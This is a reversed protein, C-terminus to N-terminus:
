ELDTLWKVSARNKLPQLSFCAARSSARPAHGRLRRRDGRRFPHRWGIVGGGHALRDVRQDCLELDAVLLVGGLIVPEGPLRALPLPQFLDVAHHSWGTESLVPHPAFPRHVSPINDHHLLSRIQQGTQFLGTVFRQRWAILYGISPTRGLPRDKVDVGVWGSM